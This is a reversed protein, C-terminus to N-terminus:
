LSVECDVSLFPIFPSKPTHTVCTKGGKSLTKKNNSKGRNEVIPVFFSSAPTSIADLTAGCLTRGALELIFKSGSFTNDKCGCFVTVVKSKPTELGTYLIDCIQTKAFKKTIIKLM